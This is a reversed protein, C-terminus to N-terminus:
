RSSNPRKCDRCLECYHSLRSSSGGNLRRRDLGGIEIGGQSRDPVAAQSGGGRAPDHQLGQELGRLRDRGLLEHLPQLAARVRGRDVAVELRQLADAEDAVDVEPMSGAEVCADAQARALVQDAVDAAPVRRHLGAIEVLDAVQDALAEAMLGPEGVERDGPEARVAGLIRPVRQHVELEQEPGDLLEVLGERAQELTGREQEREADGEDEPQAVGRVGVVQNRDGGQDCRVVGVVAVGGPEAGPPAEAVRRHQQRDPQGQDEELGLQRGPELAAGLLGHSHDDDHQRRPHDPFPRSAVVAGPLVVVVAM